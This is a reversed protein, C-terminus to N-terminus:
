ILKDIYEIAFLEAQMPLIEKEKYYADSTRMGGHNDDRTWGMEKLHERKFGDLTYLQIARGISYVGRPQEVLLFKKDKYDIRTENDSVKTFTAGM